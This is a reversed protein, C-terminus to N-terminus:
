IQTMHNEKLLKILMKGAMEQHNRQIDRAKTVDKALIAAVVARHDENSKYPKPRMHLTTMRVRHIQDRFTDVLLLMRESGTLVVMQRHFNYDAKVWGILDDRELAADMDDVIFAAHPNNIVAEHMPSDADFRLFEIRFLNDDPSTAWVKGAEIYFENDSKKDTPVGYHHFRAEAM